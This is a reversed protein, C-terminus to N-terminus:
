EFGAGAVSAALATVTAPDMQVANALTTAETTAKNAATAIGLFGAATAALGGALKAGFGVVSKAMSTAMGDLRSLNNHMTRTARQFNAQMRSIPATVRDVATFVAEVTFRNASTAM